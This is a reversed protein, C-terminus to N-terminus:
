GKKQPTKAKRNSLASGATSKAADSFRIDRLVNSATKAVGKSTRVSNKPMYEGGKSVSNYWM